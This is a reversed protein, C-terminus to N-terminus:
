MRQLTMKVETVDIVARDNGEFTLTGTKADNEMSITIQDGTVSWTGNRSQDAPMPGGSMSMSLTGGEQFTLTMVVGDPMPMTQGQRSMETVRWAGVITPAKPAEPAPPPKPAEVPGAPKTEPARAPEPAPVPRVEEAVPKPADAVAVEVKREEVVPAPLSRPPPIEPPGSRVCGGALVCAILWCVHAGTSLVLPWRSQGAPRDNGCPVWSSGVARALPNTKM